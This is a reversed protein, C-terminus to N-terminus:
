RGIKEALEAVRVGLLRATEVDGSAVPADGPSAGMAGTYSGLRNINEPATGGVMTATGVWIMSHQMANVALSVLTNLKDGSLGQSHTFGASVKDKWGQQFWIGSCGDIFAKLQASVGGMYTPTGFIIADARNLTALAEDNKWRGDQIEADLIRVLHGTTGSVAEAGAKVATALDHTHGTKSYYVIAVSPM